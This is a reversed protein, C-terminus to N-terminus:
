TMSGIEEEVIGVLRGSHILERLYEIHPYLFIDQEMAPVNEEIGLLLRATTTSQKLKPLPSQTCPLM